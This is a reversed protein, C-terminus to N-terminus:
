IRIINGDEDFIIEARCIRTGKVNYGSLSRFCPEKDLTKIATQNGKQKFTIEVRPKGGYFAKVGKNVNADPIYGRIFNEVKEYLDNWNYDEINRM